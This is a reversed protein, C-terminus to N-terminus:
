RGYGAKDVRGGKCRSYMPKGRKLLTALDDSGTGLQLWLETVLGNKCQLVVRKGAGQGFTKNALARVEKLSLYKGMKQIFLAGLASDNVQKVFSIADKFYANAETGYCTGHKVWEHKHLDSAYGPMIKALETEVKDDLALCPIDRWRKSKDAQVFEYDVNCYVRNRPQPWLGHLVFERERSKSRFLSGINRKCEKKYRHTECFANHWSLALLNQKSTVTFKKFKKQPKKVMNADARSLEDEINVTKKVAPKSTTTHMAEYIPTGRLPRLSLCDDDVWRQPPTAGEVKVLYQKKHHKLMEYTRDLKLIVHGRNKTHKLNNFLQCEKKPYIEMNASALYTLLLSLLLFRM